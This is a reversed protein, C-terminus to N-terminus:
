DGEFAGELYDLLILERDPEIIIPQGVKVIAESLAVISKEKTQHHSVIAADFRCPYSALHPNTALFLNATKILKAQKKNNIALLGDADWNRTNRTKIEVFALIQPSTHEAIIDIEGWRCHWRSHLIQYGQLQLWRDVLKEGLEGILQNMYLLGLDNTSFIFYKNKRV